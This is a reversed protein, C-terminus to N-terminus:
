CRVSRFVFHVECSWGLFDIRFKRADEDELNKGRDIKLMRPFFVGRLHLFRIFRM